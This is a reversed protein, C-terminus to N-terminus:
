PSVLSREDDSDTIFFAGKEKFRKLTFHTATSQVGDLTALHDSVFMAVERLNDGKVTVALDYGGSMLRVSEVQRNQAIKDAIAGYGNEIQPSVKLEIIATVSNEDHLEENIIAAYGAIIGSEELAKIEAKVTEEPIDLMAAIQPDTLRANTRLINLIKTQQTQM